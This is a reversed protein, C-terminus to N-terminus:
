IYPKSSHHFCPPLHWLPLPAGVEAARQQLDHGEEHCDRSTALAKLAQLLCISEPM